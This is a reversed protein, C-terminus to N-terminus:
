RGTAEQAAGPEVRSRGPGMGLRNSGRIRLHALTRRRLFGPRPGRGHTREARPGAERELRRLTEPEPCRLSRARGRRAGTLRPSFWDGPILTRLGDVRRGAAAPGARGPQWSALPRGVELRLRGAM